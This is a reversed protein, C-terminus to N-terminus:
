YREGWRINLLRDVGRVRRHIDAIGVCQIKSGCFCIARHFGGGGGSLVICTIAHPLTRRGGPQVPQPEASRRKKNHLHQLRGEQALLNAVDNRNVKMHSTTWVLHVLSGVAISFDKGM